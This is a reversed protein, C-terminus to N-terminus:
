SSFSVRRLVVCFFKKFCYTCAQTGYCMSCLPHLLCFNFSIVLPKFISSTSGRHESPFALRNWCLLSLNPFFKTVSCKVQAAERCKKIKPLSSSSWLNRLFSIEEDTIKNAGLNLSLTQLHTSTAACVQGKPRSPKNKTHKAGRQVSRTKWPKLQKRKM